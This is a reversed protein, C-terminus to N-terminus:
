NGYIKVEMSCPDSYDIKVVLNIRVDKEANVGLILNEKVEVPVGNITASKIDATYSDSEASLNIRIYGNKITDAPTISIKYEGEATNASLVRAKTSIARAKKLNGPKDFPPNNGPLDGPTPGPEPGPGPGPGPVKPKPGGSSGGFEGEGNADDGNQDDMKESKTEAPKPTRAEGINTLTDDISEQTDNQDAFPDPLVDGVKPDFEDGHDKGKMKEFLDKFEKFLLDRNKKADSYKSPDKKYRELEWKNHQINEMGGFLTAIEKGEIVCIGGFSVTSSIHGKDFVKMGPYRIIAIRKHLGPRVAMYVKIDDKSKFSYSEPTVTPDNLLEYYDLTNESIKEKYKEIYKGISGSNIQEGNVNVILHNEMIAYFFGEIISVIMSRVWDEGSSRYGLIYIDTGPETRVYDNEFSLQGTIPMSHPQSYYGVDLHEHNNPDKYCILKSVGEHAKHGKEDLTSYFVTQLDSCAFAAMKGSGYSGISGEIKDSSSVSRVLKFWPTTYDSDAKDSGLLGTTNFDSIRLVEIQGGELMPITRGFYEEARKMKGQKKVFEYADKYACVLEDRGPLDSASIMTSQFEVRVPKNDVRADISNQCIERALSSVPAGSFLDIGSDGIGHYQAGDAVPFNWHLDM